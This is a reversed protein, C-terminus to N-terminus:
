SRTINGSLVKTATTLMKECANGHKICEACMPKNAARLELCCDIWYKCQASYDEIFTPIRQILYDIIKLQLCVYSKNCHDKRYELWLFEEASIGTRGQEDTFGLTAYFEDVNDVHFLKNGDLTIFEFCPGSPSTFNIQFHHPHSQHHSMIKFDSIQLYLPINIEDTKQLIKCKKVGFVEFDCAVYICDMVQHVKARLRGNNSM